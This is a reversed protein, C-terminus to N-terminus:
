ECGRKATWCWFCRPENGDICMVQGGCEETACQMKRRDRASLAGMANTLLAGLQEALIREHHVRRAVKAIGAVARDRRHIALAEARRADRERDWAQELSRRGRCIEDAFTAKDKTLREVRGELEAIRGAAWDEDPEPASRFSGAVHPMNPQPIVRVSRVMSPDPLAIALATDDPLLGDTQPLPM